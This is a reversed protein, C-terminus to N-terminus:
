PEKGRRKKRRSKGRLYDSDDVAVRHFDQVILARFADAEAADIAWLFPWAYPLRALCVAEAVGFAWRTRRSIAQVRLTGLVNTSLGVM